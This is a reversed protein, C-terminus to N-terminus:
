KRENKMKQKKFAEESIGMTQCLKKDLDSLQVTSIESVEVKSDTVKETLNLVPAVELYSELQEKSLSLAWQRQKPLLKKVRGNISEDVLKNKEALVLSNKLSAIESDKTSLEESLAKVCEISTKYGSITSVLKAQDVGVLTEIESLMKGSMDDQSAMAPGSMKQKYFSDEKVMYESTPDMLKRCSELYARVEVLMSCAKNGMEFMDANDSMCSMEMYTGILCDLVGDVMELKQKMQEGQLKNDVVEEVIDTILDVAASERVDDTYAKLRDLVVKLSPDDTGELATKLKDVLQKNM